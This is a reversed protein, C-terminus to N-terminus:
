DRQFSAWYGVMALLPLALLRRDHLGAEFTTLTLLGVFVMGFPKTELLDIWHRMTGVKGM